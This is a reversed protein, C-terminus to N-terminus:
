LMIHIIVCTVLLFKSDELTKISIPPTEPGVDAKNQAAVTFQYTSYPSLGTLIAPSNTYTNIRYPCGVCFIIYSLIPGNQEKIPVLDWTLIISSSSLANGTFNRPVGSPGTFLSFSLSIYRSTSM